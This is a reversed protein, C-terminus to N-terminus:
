MKYILNKVVGFIFEAALFKAKKMTREERKM